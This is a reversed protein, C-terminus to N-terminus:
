DHSAVKSLSSEAARICRFVDQVTAQLTEIRKCGKILVKLKRGRVRASIQMGGAALKNDPSLANMVSKAFLSSPYLLSIEAELM